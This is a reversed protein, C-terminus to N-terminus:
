GHGVEAIDVTTRSVRCRVEATQPKEPEANVQGEIRDPIFRHDRIAIRPTDLAITM